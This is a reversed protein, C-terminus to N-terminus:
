LRAADARLGAGESIRAARQISIASKRRQLRRGRGAPRLARARTAPTRREDLQPALSPLITACDPRSCIRAFGQWTRVGASRKSRHGGHPHFGADVILELYQENQAAARTAVEDLWEGSTAGTPQRRIECVHRLFPRPRHSRARARLRADFLRRDARRVPAPRRYAQAAPFRARPACQTAASREADRAAGSPSLCARSRWACTTKPPPAFGRNRMYPEMWITTCIAARPCACSFPACNSRIQALKKLLARPASSPRERSCCSRSEDPRVGTFVFAVCLFASSFSLTVM